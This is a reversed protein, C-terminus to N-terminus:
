KRGPELMRGFLVGAPRCPPPGECLGLDEYSLPVPTLTIVMETSKAKLGEVCGDRGHGISEFTSVWVGGIGPPPLFADLPNPQGPVFARHGQWTGEWTGECSAVELTWAGWAPGSFTGDFNTNFTYTLLGSLRDDDATMISQAAAGRIHLRGGPESCPQLPNFTFEGAFCRVEGPSGGPLWDDTGTVETFRDNSAWGRQNLWGHGGAWADSAPLMLASATLTVLLSFHMLNRTNM